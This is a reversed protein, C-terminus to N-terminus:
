DRPELLSRLVETPIGSLLEKQMNERLEKCNEIWKEYISIRNTCWSVLEAPNSKVSFWSGYKCVSEERSLSPVVNSNEM